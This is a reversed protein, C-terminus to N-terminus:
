EAAEMRDQLVKFAAKIEYGAERASTKPRDEGEAKLRWVPVGEGSAERYASRDSVYAPIMADRFGGMLQKLGDIQAPQRGDFENVLIGLNMLTPNWREKIFKLRVMMEGAVEVSYPDIKCPIVSYDCAVLLANAVRSNSGATDIVCYDFGNELDTLRSYVTAVLEADQATSREVERLSPGGRLLAINQKTAALDIPTAGFLDSASLPSMFAALSGSSNAQKDGDIFLVHKGQEALFHAMNYSLISKGSGGKQNVFILKKM